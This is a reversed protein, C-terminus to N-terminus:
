RVLRVDLGRAGAGLVDGAGNLMGLIDAVYALTEPIRPVCGCRQVAAPGANYAALALRVDGFQRLLDRMLHAQADIAREADFPNDLGYARATGPMFQAIGQAGAPSRAFPNFNSEKYLQAALLTAAVSWRQAARSLAPAFRAPVFSQLSRAAGGDAGAGAFGVSATGANLTFGYHWLEWSYRQVFHFREANRALWDYAAEPGLDLETGLRHLSTGARAVWKPDPHAAFLQAQEADTRFGSVVILHVGDAAAAADMRDFALAVDPRMPKGQRYALPGAYEGAGPAGLGAPAGPPVLEAEASADGPVAAGPALVIRDRVVVRVRVPALADGPFAVDVDDAGNRQATVIAVRRGLAMYEARELHDPNPRGDLEPPAFVRPYAERLARAAALAALDAARQREGRVGIARAVGGLVVAGVLLAALTGLMLLLAQGEDEPGLRNM